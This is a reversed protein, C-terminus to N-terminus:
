RNPPLRRREESSACDTVALLPPASLISLLAPLLTLEIVLVIGIGIALGPGVRPLSRLEGAPSQCLVCIVTLASFTISTGLRSGAAVIAEDTPMGAALNERHRFLLFLGYDTGAGLLLVMLLLHLLSSIEVGIHTSEAIIPGALALALGAPALAVLPALAARFALILLLFLILVITGAVAIFETRVAAAQQDVLIPLSGTLYLLTGSRGM